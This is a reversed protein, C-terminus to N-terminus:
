ESNNMRFDRVRQNYAEIERKEMDDPDTSNIYYTNTSSDTYSRQYGSSASFQRGEYKSTDVKPLWSFMPNSRDAMGAPQAKGNFSNVATEALKNGIVGGAVSGIIGGLIAGIVTGLGPVVSGIAAGMAAGAEAGAWGGIVTGSAKAATEVKHGEPATAVDYAGLALSVPLLVGARAASGKLVGYSASLASSARSPSGSNSGRPPLGGAPVVTGGPTAGPAGAGTISRGYVNVINAQISSTPLAKSIAAQGKLGNLTIALASLATKVPGLAFSLAGFALKISGLAILFGGIGAAAKSIELVMEKNKTVWETATVVMPQFKRALETAAPLLHEGFALVLGQVKSHLAHVEGDFMTRATSINDHLSKQSSTSGKVKDFMEQHSTIIAFDQGQEGFIHNMKAAWELESNGAKIFDKHKDTLVGVMDSYSKIHDKDKLLAAGQFGLIKGKKDTKVGDLLGVDNMADLQKQGGRTGLFKYPNIREAFDKIHTGAMSGEMGNVAALASADLMDNENWGLNKVVPMAYKFTEGLSESSAHTVNVVRFLSDAFKSLKDPDNTIRADEAMRAFNYATREPSSTKKALVEMEAVYTAEPLVTKLNKQSIQARALEIGIGLIDKQSFLTLGSLDQAQKKIEKLKESTMDLNYVGSLAFEQMQVEGAKKVAGILPAILATGSAINGLGSSRMNDLKSQLEDLGKSAKQIGQVFGDFFKSSKSSSSGVSGLQDKFSKVKESMRKIEPSLQDVGSFTMSIKLNSSSSM